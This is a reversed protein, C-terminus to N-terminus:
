DYFSLSLGGACRYRALPKRNGVIARVRAQRLDEASFVFRATPHPDPFQDAWTVLRLVDANPTQWGYFPGCGRQLMRWIALGALASYCTGAEGMIIHAAHLTEASM